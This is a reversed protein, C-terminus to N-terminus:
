LQSTSLSMNWGSTEEGFPRFLWPQALSLGPDLFEVLGEWVAPAASSAPSSPGLSCELMPNPKFAHSCWLKAGGGPRLVGCKACFSGVFRRQASLLAAGCGTPPNTNCDLCSICFVSVLGSCFRVLKLTVLSLDSSLRSPCLTGLTSSRNCLDDPSVLSSCANQM